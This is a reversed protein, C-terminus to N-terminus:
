VHGITSPVSSIFLGSANFRLWRESMQRCRYRSESHEMKSLGIVDDGQWGGKLSSLQEDTLQSSAIDKEVMQIMAVVLHKQAASAM